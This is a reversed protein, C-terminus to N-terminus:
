QIEVFADGKTIFDLALSLHDSLIQKLAAESTNGCRLWIVSPPPGNRGVLDVFDKGKTLFIM